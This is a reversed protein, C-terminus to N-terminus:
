GQRRRSALARTLARPRPGLWRASSGPLRRLAEVHTAAARRDHARLGLCLGAQAVWRRPADSDALMRMARAFTPYAGAVALAHGAAHCARFAAEPSRALSAWVPVLWWPRRHTTQMFSAVWDASATDGPRGLLDTAVDTFLGHLMAIAALPAVPHASRELVGLHWRWGGADDRYRYRAGEMLYKAYTYRLDAYHPQHEGVTHLVGPNSAPYDLVYVDRWGARAMALLFDTDPSISDTFRAEEFCARRFLKVGSVRGVLPDRLLGVAVGVRPEDLLPRRLSEICHPDLIMDADLQLLFPTRVREVGTNLARHFPRVDRVEILAAPPVTQRELSALARAVTPEGMSLLVVTVDSM